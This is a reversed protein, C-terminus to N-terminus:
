KGGMSKLLKGVDVGMAIQEVPTPPAQKVMQIKSGPEPVAAYVRSDPPAAQGDESKGPLFVVWWESDVTEGPVSRDPSAILALEPQEAQLMRVLDDVEEGPLSPDFFLYLAGSGDDFEVDQLVDLAEAVILRRLLAEFIDDLSKDKGAEPPSTAYGGGMHRAPGLQTEGIYGKATYEAQWGAIRERVDAIRERIKSSNNGSNYRALARHMEAGQHSRHWEKAARVRRGLGRRANLRNQICRGVDKRPKREQNKGVHFRFGGYVRTLGEGPKRPRAVDSRSDEQVVTHAKSSPKETRDRWAVTRIKGKNDIRATIGLRGSTGGDLRFNFSGQWSNASKWAEKPTWGKAELEVADARGWNMTMSMKPNDGLRKSHFNAKVMLERLKGKNGRGGNAQTARIIAKQIKLSKPKLWVTQHARTVRLLTKVAAFIKKEATAQTWRGNKVAGVFGAIDRYLQAGGATWAHRAPHVKNNVAYGAILRDWGTGTPKFDYVPGSWEGTDDDDEPPKKRNEEFSLGLIRLAKTFAEDYVRGESGSSKSKKGSLTVREFSEVTSKAHRRVLEKSNKLLAELGFHKKPHKLLEEYTVWKVRETEWDLRAKFEDAVLGVFNSFRFGGGSSTFVFAPLLTMSGRYGLEEKIERMAARKPDEGGDIAGGFVGWTGPENVLKSRLGILIRGTSQAIPLVGAGAAGWFAEGSPNTHLAYEGEGAEAVGPLGAKWSDPGTITIAGPPYRTGRRRVKAVYEQTMDEATNEARWRSILSTVVLGDTDIIAWKAITHELGAPRRVIRLGKAKAEAIDEFTGDWDEHVIQDRPDFGLYHEPADSAWCALKGEDFAFLMVPEDPQEVRYYTGQAPGELLPFIDDPDFASYPVLHVQPGDGEVMAAPWSNGLLEQLKPSQPNFGAFHHRVEAVEKLPRLHVARRRMRGGVPKGDADVRSVKYTSDPLRASMVVVTVVGEGPIKTRYREGRRLEDAASEDYVREPLAVVGGSRSPAEEKLRKKARAAARRFKNSLKGADYGGMEVQIVGFKSVGWAGAFSGDAMYARVNQAGDSRSVDTVEARLGLAELEAVLTEAAEAPGEDM